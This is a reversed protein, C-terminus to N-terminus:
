TSEHEVDDVEADMDFAELYDLGFVRKVADVIEPTLLTVGTLANYMRWPTIGAMRAVDAYGWGNERMERAIRPYACSKSAACKKPQRLATEIKAPTTGYREALRRYTWGDLRLSFAEIKQERTM